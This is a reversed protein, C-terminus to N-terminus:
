HAPFTLRPSESEESAFACYLHGEAAQESNGSHIQKGSEVHVIKQYGLEELFAVIEFVKRLKENMTEGHMELYLEPKHRSLTQKAGQLANLEFGEIDIKLFAPAPLQQEEIDSDLTTIEVSVTKAGPGAGISNKVSQEVSGGGPMLSDFTLELKERRAGAGLPRIRVNQIHNLSLNELLRRRNTENPEYCVVQEAQQAFYMAMLGIFSGVDYVVKGRLDLSRFFREEASEKGALFAPTWGLGGRRKMGVLLGHNIRYTVSDFLNQSIWSVIRHKWSYHRFPQDGAASEGAMDSIKANGQTQLAERYM